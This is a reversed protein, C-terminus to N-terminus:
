GDAQGDGTYASPQDDPNLREQPQFNNMNRRQETSEKRRTGDMHQTSHIHRRKANSLTKKQANTMDRKAWDSLTGFVCDLSSKLHGFNSDLMVREAAFTIRKKSHHSSKKTILHLRAHASENVNTTVPEGCRKMLSQNGLKRFKAVLERFADQYMIDIGAFIGCEWPKDSEYM